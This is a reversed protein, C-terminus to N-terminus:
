RRAADVIARERATLRATDAEPWIQIAMAFAVRVTPYAHLAQHDGHDLVWRLKEGYQNTTAEFHNAQRITPLGLKTLITNERIM